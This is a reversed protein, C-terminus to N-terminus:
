RLEVSIAGLTIREARLERDQTQHLYGEVTADAGPQFMARPMGRSESRAPPALVVLLYEPPDEITGDEEPESPVELVIQVHPNRYDVETITGSLTLLTNSDYGSWGHHAAASGVGIAFFTAAAALVIALRARWPMEVKEADIVQVNARAM